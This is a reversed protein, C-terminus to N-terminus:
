WWLWLRLWDRVRRTGIYLLTHRGADLRARGRLGDLELGGPAKTDFRVWVEFSNVGERAAALPVIRDITVPYTKSPDHRTAVFGKGGQAILGIDRDDVNAVAIMEDLPAIIFLTDGLKTSAGIKDQLEGAIVSGSIPATLRAQAIQYRALDLQAQAAAARAEAQQAENINAQGRANDAEKLALTLQAAADDARRDLETTDMVALLDGAAVRVGARIGDPISGIVGDFPAAIVRKVRARIEVPSGVRYTFPVFSAFATAVVVILGVLKWGTHKSGVLWRGAYISSAWARTPLPRDDSRRLRLVPAVLDLAAQLLEITSADIPGDSASEVTIVGVVRQDGDVECRLPLSAVKLRADASALDRHAHTIAQSLVVDGGPGEQPPPPYLVAQEQDLCEDMAAEIKQVMAMRRDIHETDSLSQVRVAGAEGVGRVWGLAVRDAKLQRCLDNCLQLGSGKFNQALNVAAILRGALDLAAGAARTRRLQQRAAHAHIYGTLVEVLAMTTQLASKSRSEILLTIVGSPSSATQDEPSGGPTPGGGVPVAILCGKAGEGAEYLGDDKDLAYVRVQGSEAAGRAASRAENPAEISLEPGSEPWALMPRPEPGTPADGQAADMAFLVAQRAGSVQGLVSLLRALFARDDPLPANLEAVVRQWGPARLNSLDIM